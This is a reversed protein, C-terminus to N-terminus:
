FHQILARIASVRIKVTHLNPPFELPTNLFGDFILEFFNIKKDCFTCDNM